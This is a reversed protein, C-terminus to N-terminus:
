RLSGNGQQAAQKLYHAALASNQHLSNEQAYLRGLEAQALAHGADAAQQLCNHTQAPDHLEAFLQGAHLRYLM